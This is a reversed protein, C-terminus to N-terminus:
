DSLQHHRRRAGSLNQRRLAPPGRQAGPGHQRLRLFRRLRHSRRPHLRPHLRYPHRRRRAVAPIGDPVSWARVEDPGVTLFSVLGLTDYSARIVQDTASAGLELDVRFEAAEAADMLALEAELRASISVEGVGLALEADIDLDAISLAGAGEGTNFM